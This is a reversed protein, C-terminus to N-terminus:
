PASVQYSTLQARPAADDRSLFVEILARLIAPDSTAEIKTRVYWTRGAMRTEQWETGTSAGDLQLETDRNMAVWHAFSREKMYAANQVGADVTKIVAAMAVGIVVLAVLVEILTMGQQGRSRM